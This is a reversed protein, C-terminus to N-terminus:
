KYRGHEEALTSFESLRGALDDANWLGSGIVLRSAGADLLAPATSVSVGGDIQIPIEPHTKHFTRIKDVVREDFLQGQRGITQIGMFQVYDVDSLYPELVSSPTDITLALGLSLLDPAFGKEYGYDRKLEDLLRPFDRVSEIHVVIRTAGAAIWLGVIEEPHEVMLDIEFHFDGFSRLRNIEEILYENGEERVYPWTPPKAFMGDVVDIQVTSVLGKLRLLKEELDERSATLVSPILTDM